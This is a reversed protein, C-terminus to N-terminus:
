KYITRCLTHIFITMFDSELCFINKKNDLMSFIKDYFQIKLFFFRDYWQKLAHKVNQNKKRIELISFSENM